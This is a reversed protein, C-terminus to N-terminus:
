EVALYDGLRAQLYERLAVVAPSLLVRNAVVMYLPNPETTYEPLAVQLRGARLDALVDIRSKYAIGYGALAWRKIVEGDDSSRPGEVPISWTEDGLAFKWRDRITEGRVRRLCKHQRLEEPTGPMGHHAFYDPSACLVRSNGALLPLAVVSSDEPKGYRVAVDVSQRYLDAVRDTIRLQVSIAPRANLFDDLWPQLLNRGFDSPVSLTIGGSIENKDRTLMNSGAELANLAAQAYELYREGEATLRLSRTSRIFLKARLSSELRKLAASTVAPTLALERAAESFNGTRVVHVFIQVDQIRVM